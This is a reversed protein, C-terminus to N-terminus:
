IQFKSKSKKQSQIWYSVITHTIMLPRPTDESYLRELELQNDIDIVKLWLELCEM